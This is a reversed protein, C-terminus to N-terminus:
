KKRLFMDWGMEEFKCVWYQNPIAYDQERNKKEFDRKGGGGREGGGGKTVYM